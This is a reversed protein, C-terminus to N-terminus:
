EEMAGIFCGGGGSNNVTVSLGSPPAPPREADAPAEVSRGEPLDPAGSPYPFFIYGMGPTLKKVWGGQSVALTTAARYTGHDYVWFVQQTITNTAETLYEHSGGDEGVIVESVDVAAQFPNGLMNWGPAIEYYYGSLAMPGTTLTTPDGALTITQGNRFLFWAADGPILPDTFSPYEIYRQEEAEWNGIRMLTTDYSGIQSGIAVSPRPDTPELPVSVIHYQEVTTGAPLTTSQSTAAPPPGAASTFGWTYPTDLSIGALDTAALNVTASYEAGATLLDSPTFEAMLSNPDYTLTGAVPGPTVLRGSDAAEGALYLEFGSALAAADMPENFYVKVTTDLAIGTAGDAPLVSLVQPAYEDIKFAVVDTGGGGYATQYENALPFDTSSATDGAVYFSGSPDLAVGYGGDSNSGGITVSVVLSSGSAAMQTVFIDYSGGVGFLHDSPFDTSNFYGTVVAEGASNVAIGHGEDIGDGGLYTSYVLSAAGTQAPDFKAVFADNAAQDTQYPNKTPFTTTGTTGVVYAMPTSDVTIGSARDDGSGGSSGLFTSYILSAAGSLAPDVVSVFADVYATDSHAAQFANKTPFDGSQTAGCIYARGGSCVALAARTSVINFDPNSGGLYTSYLLSSGDASLRSFFVDYGGSNSTAYGSGTTPFDGSASGGAVYVTGDPRVALGTGYDDSAGGLYTGFVVSSGDSSLEVVFADQLGGLTTQYAGATIPFPLGGPPPASNTSGTIFVNGSSDFDLGYCNDNGGGGLYTSYVPQGTADMKFIFVENTAGSGSYYPNVTPFDTSATTGAVYVNGTADVRIGAYPYESASGGMYTSYVLYPDIILPRTRDYAALRFAVENKGTLIYGGDVPVRRDEVIQYIDPKRLTVPGAGTEILLHGEPIISLKDSGGVTLRILDPDARAAVLFDYELRGDRGYFVLDIGPYVERYLVKGYTPLNRVCRAPDGTLYNVRGPLPEVSQFEPNPLAGTWCLSVAAKDGAASDLRLVAGGSTLFITYGTGRALYNVRSDTQGRNPEFALPRAAQSWGLRPPAAAEAAFPQVCVAPLLAALLFLVSKRM